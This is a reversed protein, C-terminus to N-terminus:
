MQWELELAKNPYQSSPNWIWPLYQTSFQHNQTKDIKDECIEFVYKTWLGLPPFTLSQPESFVLKYFKSSANNWKLIEAAITLIYVTLSM